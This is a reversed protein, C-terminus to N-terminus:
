VNTCCNCSTVVLECMSSLTYNDKGTVLEGISWTEQEVPVVITETCKMSMNNNRCSHTTTYM